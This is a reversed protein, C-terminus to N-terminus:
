VLLLTLATPIVLMVAVTACGTRKIGAGALSRKWLGEYQLVKVFAGEADLGIGSVLNAATQAANDRQGKDGHLAYWASMFAMAAMYRHALGLEDLSLGLDSSPTQEAGEMGKVLAHVGGDYVQVTEPPHSRIATEADRLATSVIELAEDKSRPGEM